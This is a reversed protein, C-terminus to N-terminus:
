ASQSRARAGVAEETLCTLQLPLDKLGRLLHVLDDQAIPRCVPSSSFVAASRELGPWGGVHEQSAVLALFVFM